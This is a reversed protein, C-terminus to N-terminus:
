TELSEVPTDLDWADLLWQEGPHWEVAALHVQRPIVRRTSRDGRWNTYDLLVLGRTASTREIDHWGAPPAESAALDM